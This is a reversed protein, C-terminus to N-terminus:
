YTGAIISGRGPGRSPHNLMFWGVEYNEGGKDCRLRSPLGYEEVAKTFLRFVTTAQNNCSAHLFVLLQLYGDVGGHVVIRWRCIFQM